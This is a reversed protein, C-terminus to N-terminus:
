SRRTTTTQSAFKPPEKGDSTWGCNRCWSYEILDHSDKTTVVNMNKCRPCSRM